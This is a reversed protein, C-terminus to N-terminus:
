SGLASQQVLTDIQQELSAIAAELESMADSLEQLNSVQEGSQMAKGMLEKGKSSLDRLEDLQAVLVGFPSDMHEMLEFFAERPSQKDSGQLELETKIDMILDSIESELVKKKSPGAENVFESFPIHTAPVTIDRVPGTVPIVASSQAANTVDTIM